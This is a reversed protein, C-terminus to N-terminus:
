RSTLHADFFAVVPATWDVCADGCFATFVLHGARPVVHEEPPKPLGARVVGSNWADPANTDNEARWLQVPVRVGRLGGGRFTVAVAPAAVVAVKIRADHPWGDPPAAISDLQDGHRRAIFGCEPASPREHCLKPIQRFDPNGGIAVLATYGGLSFGFVGVRRPDVRDREPWTALMYDLLTRLQRPRDVLNRRTGAASQDQYNDGPHTLAAVVYGARALALALDYHSMNSGGTGHSIVILPLDRGTLRGDAAVTQRFPGIPQEAVPSDSPYWIAVSMSGVVVQQFGVALALWHM